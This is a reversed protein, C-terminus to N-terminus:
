RKKGRFTGALILAAGMLGTDKMMAMMSMQKHETAMGPAHVTLIFIGLLGALLLCALEGKIGTVIAIAAAILCVGVLYVWFIGGPVWSPVMGVMGSAMTLHGLGFVAFPVAYFVRGVTTTLVKM